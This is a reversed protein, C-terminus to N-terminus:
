KIVENLDKIMSAIHRQKEVSSPPIMEIDKCSPLAPPTDALGRKALHIQSKALDRVQAQFASMQIDVGYHECLYPWGGQKEIVAWGIEGVFNKAAEQNCWGFKPIAAVIRAAVERATSDDDIPEKILAVLKSVPRPFFENKPDDCYLAIAQVLEHTTLRVALFESYVRVQEDTLTKEYFAALELIKIKYESM